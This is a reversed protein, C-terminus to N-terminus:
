IRVYVISGIWVLSAFMLGIVRIPHQDVDFLWRMFRLVPNLYLALRLISASVFVLLTWISTLLTSVGFAFLFIQATSFYEVNGLATRTMLLSVSVITKAIMFPGTILECHQRGDLDFCINPWSVLISLGWYVTMAIAYSFVIDIIIWLCVRSLTTCKQVQSLILRGKGLSAYDPFVCLICFAIFEGFALTAPSAGKALAEHASHMVRPHKFYIAMFIASVFFASALFSRRFCHLTLHRTGFIIAFLHTISKAVLSVDYAVRASKLFAAIDQRAEPRVEAELRVSGLYIATALVAGSAPAGLATSFQQLWDM